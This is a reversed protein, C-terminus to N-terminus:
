RGSHSDDPAPQSDLAERCEDIHWGDDDLWATSYGERDPVLTMMHYDGPGLDIATGTSPEEHGSSTFTVVGQRGRWYGLAYAVAGLVFAIVYVWVPLESM